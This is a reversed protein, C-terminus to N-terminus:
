HKIFFSPTPLRCQLEVILSLDPSCIQFLRKGKEVLYNSQESLDEPIHRVKAMISGRYDRDIIGVSNAMVLPTKSISSRPYLYYACYHSTESNKMQCKVKFNLTSVKWVPADVEDPCVLDVGSDSVGNRSALQNYYERVENSVSDDVKIELIYM